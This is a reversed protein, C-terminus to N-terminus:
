IPAPVYYVTCVFSPLHLLHSDTSLIHHLHATGSYYVRRGIHKFLEDNFRSYFEPLDIRGCELSPFAASPDAACKAIVQLITGRPLGLKEDFAPFFRDLRSLFAIVCM